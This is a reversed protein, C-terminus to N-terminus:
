DISISAQSPRAAAAPLGFASIARGCRLLTHQPDLLPGGPITGAPVSVVTVAGNAALVQQAPPPGDVDAHVSGLDDRVGAVLGGGTRGAHVGDARLM